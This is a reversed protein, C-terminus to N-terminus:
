MPESGIRPNIFAATPEFNLTVPLLLAITLAPGIGPLVGVITGLTVGIAAYLLYEPQLATAFGGLLDNVAEM